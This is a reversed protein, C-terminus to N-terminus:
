EKRAHRSAVIADLSLPARARADNEERLAVVSEARWPTSRGLMRKTAAESPTEPARLHDRSIARIPDRELNM